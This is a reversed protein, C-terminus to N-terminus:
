QKITTNGEIDGTIITSREIKDSAVSREGSATAGTNTALQTKADALLKELKEAFDDDAQVAKKLQHRLTAKIDEDEPDNIFDNMAEEAAPNGKFKQSIADILSVVKEGAVEGIVKALDKSANAIPKVASGFAKIIAPSLVTIVGNIVVTLTESDM